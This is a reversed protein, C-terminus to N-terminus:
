RGALTRHPLSPAVRQPSPNDHEVPRAYSNGNVESFRHARLERRSTLGLKKFINRLHADVTRPSLFLEAAIEKSTAGTSVLEAVCFEQATLATTAEASRRAPVEGTARLERAARNAFGQAGMDLFSVHAVRLMSRADVRRGQRRLWEGYILRARALHGKAQTVELSSIADKYLVEARSNDTLLARSRAEM